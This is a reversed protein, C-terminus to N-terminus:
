GCSQSCIALVSEAGMVARSADLCYHNFHSSLIRGLTPTFDFGIQLAFPVRCQGDGACDGLDQVPVILNIRLFGALVLRELVKLHLLGILQPLHVEFAIKCDFFAVVAM